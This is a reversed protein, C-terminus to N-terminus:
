PNLTLFGGDIPYDTGTIFSAKDSCLFAALEAVESPKGMRGIPQTKSLKEFMEREKGPYNKKLFGDVFPTHIRSPSISNCRINHQLYDKAISYTMALLAGKTMSYGFRDQLGVSAAISAINLIVGGGAGKMQKICAKTCYFAGKINVDILGELDEIRCEEINGIHAIGANNVLVDISGNAAIEEIANNVQKESTIDCPRLKLTGAEADEISSVDLVTVDAGESAFKTAIALGIGSAGGTIIARKNELIM